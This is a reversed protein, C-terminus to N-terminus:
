QPQWGHAYLCTQIDSDRADRNVDRNIDNTRDIQSVYQQGSTDTQFCKVRVHTVNDYCVSGLAVQGSSVQVQGTRTPFKVNAERVCSSKITEFDKLSSNPKEWVQACGASVLICVVVLSKM